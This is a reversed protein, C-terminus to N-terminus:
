SIWRGVTAPDEPFPPFSQEVGPAQALPLGAHEVWAHGELRGEAIRVGIRLDCAIRQRLLLSRLVLSRPLCTARWPFRAGAAHVLRATAAARAAEDGRLRPVLPVRGLRDLVRATGAYGATALMARALLLGLGAQALLAIEPLSLALLKRLRAAM